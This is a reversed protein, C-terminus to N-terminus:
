SKIRPKKRIKELESGIKSLAFVILTLQCNILAILVEM